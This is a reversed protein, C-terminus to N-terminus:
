CAELHWLEEKRLDPVVHGDDRRHNREEGLLEALIIPTTPRPAVHHGTTVTHSHIAPALTPYDARIAELRYPYDAQSSDYFDRYPYDGRLACGPSAM